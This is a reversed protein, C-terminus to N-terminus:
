LPGSRDPVPQEHYTYKTLSIYYYSRLNEQDVKKKAEEAMQAVEAEHVENTNSWLPCKRGATPGGRRNEFHNYGEIPQRCIYCMMAGCQCTVKNCGDILVSPKKCRLCKRMLAESMKNEVYTRRRVDEDKEIEECRQPIHSIEHCLRCSVKNCDPNQCNFIKNEEPTSNMLTAFGM